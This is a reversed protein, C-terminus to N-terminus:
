SPSVASTDMSPLYCVRKSLSAKIEEYVSDLDGILYDPLYDPDEEKYGSAKLYSYLRNAGGDACFKKGSMKWIEDMHSPLPSNAVILPANVFTYQDFISEVEVESKKSAETQEFFFSRSKKPFMWSECEWYNIKDVNIIDAIRENKKSHEEIQELASVIAADLFQREEKGFDSELM